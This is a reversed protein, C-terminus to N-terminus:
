KSVNFHITCGTLSAGHFVGLGSLDGATPQVNAEKNCEPKDPKTESKMPENRPEKVVDFKTSEM